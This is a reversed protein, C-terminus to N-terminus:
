TWGAAGMTKLTGGLQWFPGGPHELSAFINELIDFHLCRAGRFSLGLAGQNASKKPQLGVRFRGMGLGGAPRGGASWRAKFCAMFYSPRLSHVSQSAKYSNFASLSRAANLEVFATRANTNWGRASANPRTPLHPFPPPPAAPSRSQLPAPTPPQPPAPIPHTHSDLFRLHRYM